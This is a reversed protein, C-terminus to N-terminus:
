SERCSEAVYEVEEDSLGPYMPLSLIQEYAAERDGETDGRLQITAFTSRGDSSVFAPSDTSWYSTTATVADSPLAALVGTVAQEFAPDEVTLEDHAYIVVVDDAQRGLAQEARVIARESESDPDEFGGGVLASFVGTGWAAAVVMVFTAVLLVGRRYDFATTGLKAFM